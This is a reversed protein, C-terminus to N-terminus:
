ARGELQLLRHRNWWLWALIGGSLYAVVDWLDGTARQVIYPGFGEFLVSWVLLNFAIEGGAPMQDHSRLRLWRQLFLLPPLACPILLVDNFYFSLFANNMQPILVWRNLLYLLIGLLFFRDRLYNFSKLAAGSDRARIGGHAFTEDLFVHKSNVVRLPAM